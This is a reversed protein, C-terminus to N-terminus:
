SVEVIISKKDSKGPREVVETRIRVNAYLRDMARKLAAKKHGKAEPMGEFQTPAYNTGPAPGVAREVGQSARARLCALFADDESAARSVEALQNRVDPTLDDERVFAGDMWVFRIAEGKRAYNAKGVTITRVDTELDHTLTAQSRVVNLWATSGSYDDGSKNPHGLLLIAAGTNEALRNLLNVFRTVDGRDNENGTFLHAVNDLIALTAGTAQLMQVLRHFAAAPKLTGDADFTGLENDLAGRLSSLHLKGALSAMGVRLAKCISAQRWHLQDADDECTLYLAAGPRVDLGLCPMGAAACTALQQGFLSKGASGPGTFLTVEALPALREVAFAKPKPQVASLAALDLTPLPMLSGALAKATLARLDEASGKWDMVDGKAPLGPLDLICSSAAVGDVAAKVTEAFKHGPEDNDPLIVLSLGALAAVYEPRWSNAGFAIATAIFGMSILKDAKREGEVFYVLPADDSAARALAVANQLDTLRYLVRPVDGLGNVWCGSEFREAVFRKDPKGNSKGAREHRRTRYVVNGMGDDYEYVGTERWQPKDMGRREQREPLIGHRRLEDKVALADGGNFSHVLLGDPADPSLSIVTGRDRNSHGETPVHVRNGRVEGGLAAAISRLNPASAM